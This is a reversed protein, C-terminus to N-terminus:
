ERIEKLGAGGDADTDEGGGVSQNRCHAHGGDRQAGDANSHEYEEQRAAPRAASGSVPDIIGSSMSVSPPEVRDHESREAPMESLWSSLNGSITAAAARSYADLMRRTAAALLANTLAGDGPLDASAGDYIHDDSRPSDPQATSTRRLSTEIRDEADGHDPRARGCV